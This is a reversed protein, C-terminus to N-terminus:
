TFAASLDYEELNFRDPPRVQRRPRMPQTTTGTPIDTATTNMQVAPRNSSVSPQPSASESTTLGEPESSIVQRDDNDTKTLQPIVPLASDSSPLPIPLPTTAINITPTPRHYPTFRRLFKRNRLTVRGSGDVRIAYQDFQKVEVVVGTKDWKRPEHGTQNQIRVHDGVKLPPLKKTYQTLREVERAHRIRLARERDNSTEVWVDAPRYKGPLIPIFDRIPRKFLIMAPSLKTDQDPANRYQLIARQFKNTDLEGYPGTNDTILRKAMKVGIEARGNSHPFAM